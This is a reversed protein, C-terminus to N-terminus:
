KSQKNSEAVKAKAEAETIVGNEVMKWLKREQETM